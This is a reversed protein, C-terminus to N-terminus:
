GLTPKTVMLFVIVLVDASVLIGFLRARGALALYTESTPGAAELAAAQRRALPSFVFLGLLVAIAYLVLAAGLWFTTLDLHGVAVMSLGTLLLLAYAPNAIRSDIFRVGRLAFATHEPERAARAFWIGYTANAGVAVIALLVHLFKLFTYLTVAVV